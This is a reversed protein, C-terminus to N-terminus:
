YVQEGLSWYETRWYHGNDSVKCLRMGGQFVCDKKRVRPKGAERSAGMLVLRSLM